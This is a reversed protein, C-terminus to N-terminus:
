MSFGEASDLALERLAAVKFGAWNHISSRKTGSLHDVRQLSIQRLKSDIRDMPVIALETVLKRATMPEIDGWEILKRYLANADNKRAGAREDDDLDAHIDEVSTKEQIDELSTPGNQGLQNTRNPDVLQDTESKSTPGNQVLKSPDFWDLVLPQALMPNSLQEETELALSIQGFGLGSWWRALAPWDVRYHNTATPSSPVRNALWRHLLGIGDGKAHRQVGIPWDVSLLDLAAKIPKLGIALEESWERTSKYFWRGPSYHGNGRGDLHIAYSLVLMAEPSGLANAIAPHYRVWGGAGCEGIWSWFLQEPDSLNNLSKKSRM